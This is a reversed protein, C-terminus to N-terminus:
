KKDIIITMGKPSKQAKEAVKFDVTLLKLIREFRSELFTKDMYKTRGPLFLDLKIRHGESLWESAKKAKVSLDNEDTGVKIQINKVEIIKSKAKIAKQKKNQEYLFKGYDAIKAIPPNTNPSIEILDLDQEKAIKLAEDKSLIGINEGESGIVRLEHSRIQENIRIQQTRNLAKKILFQQWYLISHCSTLFYLM